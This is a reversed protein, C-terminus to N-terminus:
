SQCYRRKSFIPFKKLKRTKNEVTTDVSLRTAACLTKGKLVHIKKNSYMM